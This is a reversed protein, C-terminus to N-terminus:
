LGHPQLILCSQAVLCLAADYRFVARVGRGGMAGKRGALAM